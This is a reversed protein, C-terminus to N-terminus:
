PLVVCGESQITVALCARVERGGEGTSPDRYNSVSVDVAANSGQRVGAAVTQEYENVCVSVFVFQAGVNTSRSECVMAAQAADGGVVVMGLAAACAAVVSVGRRAM